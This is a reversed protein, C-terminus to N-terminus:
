ADPVLGAPLTKKERSIKVKPDSVHVYSSQGSDSILGAPLSKKSKASRKNEANIASTLVSDISTLIDPFEKKKKGVVPAKQTM